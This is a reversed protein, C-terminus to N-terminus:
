LLDAGRRDGADPPTRERVYVYQYQNDNWGGRYEPYAQLVVSDGNAQTIMYPGSGGDHGQNFYEVDQDIVSDSMVYAAYAASTVLDIACPYGCTITVEYEGTAEVSGGNEELVADWIYAGGQGLDMTRKFSNVVQQATLKSGDHFTVDDRLQFVWVTGDENSSWSTALMPVVEGTEPDYHTLTEYVNQLVMIGNSYEISPDLTVYPMSNHIHYLIRNDAAFASGGLGAALGLVLVLVLALSILKKM